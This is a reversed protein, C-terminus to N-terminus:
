GQACAPSIPPNALRNGPVRPPTLARDLFELTATTRRATRDVKLAM